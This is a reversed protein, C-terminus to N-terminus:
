VARGHDGAGGAARQRDLGLSSMILSKDDPKVNLCQVINDARGFALVDALTTWCTGVPPSRICELTFVLM